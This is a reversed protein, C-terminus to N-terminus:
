LLPAVQAETYFSCGGDLLDILAYTNSPTFARIIGAGNPTAVLDGQRLTYTTISRNYNRAIYNMKRAVNKRSM